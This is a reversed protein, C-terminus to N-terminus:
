KNKTYRQLSSHVPTPERLIVRAMERVTPRTQRDGVHSYLTDSQRPKSVPISTPKSAVKSVPKSVPEFANAAGREWPSQSLIALLENDQITNSNSM